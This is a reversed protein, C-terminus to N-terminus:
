LMLQGNVSQITKKNQNLTIEQNVKISILAKGNPEFDVLHGITKGEKDTISDAVNIQELKGTIQVPFLRKKAKGLYHMRAVIEQGTYCGKKFSVAGLLDLNIAEPTFKGLAKKTLFPLKNQINVSRWHTPNCSKEPEKHLAPNIIFLEGYSLTLIVSSDKTNDKDLLKISQETTQDQTNENTESEIFYSNYDLKDFNVNSRMVYKELNLITADASENDTILYINNDHGQQLEYVMFFAIVRGQPNCQATYHWQQNLNNVDQTLQGQLFPIADDGSVLIVSLPLSHNQM